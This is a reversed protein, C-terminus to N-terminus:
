PGKRDILIARFDNVNTHTPGSRISQGIAEFFDGSRHHLLDDQASRGNDQGVGLTQGDVFAGAISDGITIQGDVGDTDAFLASINLHGAIQAAFSLATERNPGGETAKHTPALQTTVEGGSLIVGCWGQEALRIAEKALERGVVQANGEMDDGLLRVKLAAQRARDEAANLADMPKAILRFDAPKAPSWKVQETELRDRVLAPLAIEFRKLIKLADSASTRDPVTPGSAIIEPADGVVDSIALTVLKAPEAIQGLRGGKVASLHKRVTNIDEINAGSKLLATTIKRYERWTIGDRPLTLLASGGGSILALVLDQAGAAQALEVIRRTADIGNQNPVPHGAEVVEIHQTRLKSGYPCIVLGEIKKGAWATEVALAMASAAKGAGIVIIRGSSPPEPLFPPLCAKPQVQRVAARFLDELISRSTDEM